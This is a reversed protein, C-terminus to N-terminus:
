TGALAPDSPHPTLTTTQVTMWDYLPLTELIAQMADADAARWLGLVQSEDDLRWLRELHGEGALERARVAERAESVDAEEAPTGGPISIVFTTLFETGGSHQASQGAGAPDNPHPALPTPEDTRWVRLPMSALVEELQGPDDAAFLGLSRWEGPQLPPRWLRLLQGAAALERSRAAERERIRQIDSEATGEPVHTTMTVLYEM